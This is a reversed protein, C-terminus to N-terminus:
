AVDGKAVTYAVTLDNDATIAHVAEGIVKSLRSSMQACAFENAAYVTVGGDSREARSQAVWQQFTNSPIRNKLHMLVEPWREWEDITAAKRAKPRPPRQAELDLPAPPEPEREPKGDRRWNAVVKRAYATPNGAGKLRAIEMAEMMWDDPDPDIEIAKETEIEHQSENPNTVNLHSLNVSSIRPRDLPHGDSTRRVTASIGDSTALREVQRELRKRETDARRREIVKGFYEHWDHLRLSGDPADELFGHQKGVRADILAKVFQSADGDWQAGDAIVEPAARYGTLDGDPVYQAAWSWMAVLHGVATMRSIGLLRALKKTKPHDILTVDVQIYLM